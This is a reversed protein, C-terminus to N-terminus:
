FLLTHLLIIVSCCTVPSKQKLAEDRCEYSALHVFTSHLQKGRIFLRIFHGMGTEGSDCNANCKYEGADDLTLNKFEFHILRTLINGTSKNLESVQTVYRNIDTLEACNDSSYKCWFASQLRCEMVKYTVNCHLQLKDGQTRNFV